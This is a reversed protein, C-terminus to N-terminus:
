EEAEIRRWAESSPILVARGSDIKEIRGALLEDIEQETRLLPSPLSDLLEAALQARESESLQLAAAKVAEATPM